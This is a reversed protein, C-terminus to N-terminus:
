NSILYEFTILMGTMYDACHRLDVVNGDDRMCTASRRREGIGCLSPSESQCPSWEDVKLNYCPLVECRLTELFFFM